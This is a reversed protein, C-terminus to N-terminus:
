IETRCWTLLGQKSTKVMAWISRPGEVEVECQRVLVLGDSYLVLLKHDAIGSGDFSVVAISEFRHLLVRAGIKGFQPALLSSREVHSKTPRNKSSPWLYFLLKLKLWNEVYIRNHLDPVSRCLDVHRIFCRASDDPEAEFVIFDLTDQRDNRFRRFSKCPIPALGLTNFPM